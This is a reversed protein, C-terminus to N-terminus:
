TTRMKMLIITKGVQDGQQMNRYAGLVEDPMVIQEVCHHVKGRQVAPWVITELEALLRRKRFRAAHPTHPRVFHCKQVPLGGFQM